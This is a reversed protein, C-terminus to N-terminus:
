TGGFDPIDNDDTSISAIYEQREPLAGCVFNIECFPTLYLVIHWSQLELSPLSNSTTSLPTFLAKDNYKFLLKYKGDNVKIFVFGILNILHRKPCKNAAFVSISLELNSPNTLFKIKESEVAM